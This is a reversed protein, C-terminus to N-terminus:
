LNKDFGHIEEKKNRKEEKEEKLSNWIARAHVIILFHKAQITRLFSEKWIKPKSLFESIINNFRESAAVKGSDAQIYSLIQNIFVEFDGSCKTTCIVLGNGIREWLTLRDLNDGFLEPLISCFNIASEKIEKQEENSLIQNQDILGAIKQRFEKASLINM